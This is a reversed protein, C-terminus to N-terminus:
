RRRRLLILSGIAGLIAASPEPVVTLNNVFLNDEIIGNNTTESVYFFISEPVGTYTGTDSDSVGGSRTIAWSGGGASTQTFSLNFKTNNSYTNGITGNGTTANSVVYDDNGINFNFISTTGTSRLNFGKNGNRFNVALDLSVTQGVGLSNGNFTRAAGSSQGSHAFMGFSESSTNIDAGPNSLSTSSGIFRGSQAGGATLTWAGFTNATGGDSGNVWNPNYAADNAFDSGIVVAAQSTACLIASAIIINRLKM